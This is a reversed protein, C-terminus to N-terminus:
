PPGFMAHGVDAVHGPGGRGGALSDYSFLVVGGVAMNHAARTNAVIEQQSLRYAGIGAWVVKPGAIAGAASIQQAFVTPDTTYAM